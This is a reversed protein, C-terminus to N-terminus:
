APHGEGDQFGETPRVQGATFSPKKLPLLKLRTVFTSWKQVALSSGLAVWCPTPVQLKCASFRHFDAQGHAGQDTSQGCWFSLIHTHTHIHCAQRCSILKWKYNMLKHSICIIYINIVANRQWASGHTAACQLVNHYMAMCQLIKRYMADCPMVHYSM